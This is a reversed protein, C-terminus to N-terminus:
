KTDSIQHSVERHVKSAWSGPPSMQRSLYLWLLMAFTKGLSCGVDSDLWPCGFNMQLFQINSDSNQM